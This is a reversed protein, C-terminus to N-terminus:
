KRCAIEQKIKDLFEEITINKINDGERTRVTIKQSSVEKKGIIIMYPVKELQAQRIKYSLMENKIDLETRIEEETLKQHIKSAFPIEKDTVTLIKVQVPALWLPFKGGLHEILVGLFRDIAGLVVRHIMVVRKKEGDPAVYNLDFREPLNFDVQITPGQWLRGLADEMQIDIKPGYFAGEGEAVEFDLNEEELAKKLASTSKEWSIDSGISKEPRTSLTIKYGLHFTEMMFLSFKLVERVEEVLQSPMCFIHADDQTFGRLRLLGHLVGSAERRYVTGLEFFRLPLERYSRQKSKYVMIHAPCNMPKIVYEEGNISFVYMNERYFDLHGSTRWLQARSIHPTRVLQYGRKLHEKKEFEEIIERIICGKPHYIALGAGLEPYIEFIELERGIKRHDQQKAKELWELYNKLENETFFCTGYIRSLMPNGEKGKWYAGAVSLLAFHKVKGTTEVHPGRCLDVFEGQKYITVKSDPIEELLEIKYPENLNEFLKKAEEKTIIKKEFPIDEKVIKKMEEEIRSLNKSIIDGDIEFDYYFGDKIPPGIGLKAEPFLRKVAQALIHSASHRLTELEQKSQSKVESM